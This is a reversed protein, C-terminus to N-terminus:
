RKGFKNKLFVKLQWAKYRWGMDGWKRAVHLFGYRDYESEFRERDKYFKSSRLLNPNKRLLFSESVTLPRIDLSPAAEELLHRGKDSDAIVMSTGKDGDMEPCVEGIGWFDAITLDAKRNGLHYPCASCSHRLMINKYFLVRFTERVRKKGDDYLFSEKHIKWGGESKDRFCVSSVSGYRGMYGVYDKWVAPSPVGHCIFDVTHLSTRLRDPIYSQLGAVQCPTGSFLVEKGAQLDERVRRFVGDMDSQVYKSGRFAACEVATSAREHRVVFDDGIVAGYVTGGKRIIEDSLASFVGGSQSSAVVSADKNRIASVTVQSSASAPECVHEKQFDCVRVCLGCEVCREVDVYPYPFGLVDTRMEIADHPCAAQCASCGCCLSKDKISIM